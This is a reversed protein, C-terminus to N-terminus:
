ATAVFELTVKLSKITLPFRVTEPVVVDILVSVTVTSSLMMTKFLLAVPAGATSAPISISRPEDM